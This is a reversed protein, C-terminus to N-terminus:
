ATSFRALCWPSPSRSCRLRPGAPPAGRPRPPPSSNCTRAPPAPALTAVNDGSAPGEALEPDPQLEDDLRAARRYEDDARNSRYPDDPSRFPDNPNREYAM